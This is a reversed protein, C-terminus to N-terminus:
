ISSKKRAVYKSKIKTLTKSPDRPSISSPKNNVIDTALM